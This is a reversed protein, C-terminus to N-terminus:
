VWDKTHEGLWPARAPASEKAGVFKLAPALQEREGAHSSDVTMTPKLIQVQEHALTERYDHFKVSIGGFGNIRDSAEKSTVSAFWPEYVKGATHRRDGIYITSRWDEYVPDEALRGLGISRIFSVWGDHEGHRFDYTVQGDKTAWGCDPAWRPGNLHFGLWADPEVQAALLIAKMSILAKLMSVRVVQGPGGAKVHLLGALLAQFAHIGAGVWAVEYGVRCPEGGTEGVYRTFGSMAQIVLESGPLDKFPGKEGLDNLDVVVLRPFRAVYADWDLAMEARVDPDAHFVVADARALLAELAAKGENGTLDLQVSQKRRNLHCFIAATDGIMPPGWERCRDGEPPEIKVVTAGLDALHLGCVPGAVGEAIELITLGEFSPLTGKVPRPAESM